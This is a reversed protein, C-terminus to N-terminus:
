DDMEVNFKKIFKPLSEQTKQNHAEQTINMMIMPKVAGSPGQGEESAKGM